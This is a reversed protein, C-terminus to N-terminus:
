GQLAFGNIMDKQDKKPRNLPTEISFIALLLKKIIEKLNFKFIL